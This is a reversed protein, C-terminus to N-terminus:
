QRAEVADASNSWFWEPNSLAMSQIRNIYGYYDNHNYVKKAM